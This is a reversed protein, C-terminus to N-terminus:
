RYAAPTKHELGNEIDTEREKMLRLSNARIAGVVGAVTGPDMTSKTADNERYGEGPKLMPDTM